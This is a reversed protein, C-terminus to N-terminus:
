STSLKTITYFVIMIKYCMAINQFTNNFWINSRIQKTQLIPLCSSDCYEIGQRQWILLRLQKGFHGEKAKYAEANSSLDWHENTTGPSGKCKKHDSM